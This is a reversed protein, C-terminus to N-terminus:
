PGSHVTLFYKLIFKQNCNSFNIQVFHKKDNRTFIFWKMKLENNMHILLFELCIHSLILTVFLLSKVIFTFIKNEYNRM